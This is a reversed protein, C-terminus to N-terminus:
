NKTQDDKSHGAIACSAFCPRRSRMSPSALGECPRTKRSRTRNQARVLVVVASGWPRLEDILRIRPQDVKLRRCRADIANAHSPSGEVLRRAAFRHDSLLVLILSDDDVGVRGPHLLELDPHHRMAEQLGCRRVVRGDLLLGDAAPLVAHEREHTLVFRRNHSEDVVLIEDFAHFGPDVIREEAVHNEFGGVGVEPIEASHLKRHMDHLPLAVMRDEIERNRVDFDVRGDRNLRRWGSAATAARWCGRRRRSWRNRDLFEAFPDVQNKAPVGAEGDLELIVDHDDFSRLAFSAGLGDNGFRLPQDRVLRNPVDDVRVRM